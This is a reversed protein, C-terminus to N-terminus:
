SKLTLPIIITASYGKIGYSESDPNIKFETKERNQENLLRITEVLVRLGTGGGSPSVNVMDGCNNFVSIAIRHDGEASVSINLVREADHPLSAFGHKFANEVLIQLAMSPFMFDPSIGPSLNFTYNLNGRGNDSIVKIYDDVFALEESFPILIESVIYQQRRILHVLSDLHSLNGNISNNLEHNLANYIFHPTIRNRLNEERLAMIKHMMREERRRIRGRRLVIFLVLGVIITLTLAVVSLLRFIRAQQRTSGAELNLIRKDRQYIANLASIRQKLTYSRLSDNLRDYRSRMNYAKEYNGTLTYLEELVQLRALLQELRLTDALPYTNALRNAENVDRTKIAARMRLTHIYSKVMPNPQETSFYRTASDLLASAQDPKDLRLYTDAINVDTFMREWRSDPISDLMKRLSTFIHNSGEYDQRYYLDNGMGSFTNFKDFRNMEELIEMSKGWWIASNDFDRMDTFVAAIGNYLPIYHVPEMKLSDAVTIARHYYVAASDLSSGLRMANAYNGYAQPLDEYIGSLEVNEVSLKLYKAASDPNFNFQDYYAGRTQYAKAIIRALESTIEQHELWAIASDASSLLLDPKGQYYSNVGQQVMGESWTQSDGRALAKEKLELTLRVADNINGHRLSDNIEGIEGGPSSPKNRSGCSLTGVILIEAIIFPLLRLLHTSPKM